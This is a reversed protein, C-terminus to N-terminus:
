AVLRSRIEQKLSRDVGYGAFQRMLAEGVQSANLRFKYGKNIVMSM